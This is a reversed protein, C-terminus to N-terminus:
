WKMSVTAMIMSVKGDQTNDIKDDYRRFQYRLQSSLHRSHQVDVAAAFYDEVVRMDSLVDIGTSNPVSGNVRFDGHSFSRSADATLMAREGIAHALSLSFVEATDAYPVSNELNFLGANDVFTLTQSKRNRFFLYSATVSSRKGVLFTLSGLVQDRESKM